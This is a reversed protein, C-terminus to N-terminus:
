RAGRSREIERQAERRKLSERKDYQKKGKAVAIEVKIRGKKLYLRTPVLTMGGADLERALKRIERAHLLLKRPRVPDIEERSHTYPSFHTGYLVVEGNKIRAYGEKLNVRGARASKVEAGLLVIGAEFRELLHFEHSAARNMALVPQDSKNKKGKKAM